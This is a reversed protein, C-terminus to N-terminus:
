RNEILFDAKATEPLCLNCVPIGKYNYGLETIYTNHQNIIDKNIRIDKKLTDSMQLILKVLKSM